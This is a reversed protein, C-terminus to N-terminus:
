NVMSDLNKTDVQALAAPNKSMEKQLIGVARDLTDIADVLEKESAEFTAVEKERVATAEKLEKEDASISASLEEIKATSAEIDAAAKSIAAELDEQSKTGTKIENHLNAAADDCWEFYDKFAKAEEEGEAKIKAELSNMLEYVKGLPDAQAGALLLASALVARSSQM